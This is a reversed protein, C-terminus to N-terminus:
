HPKASQMIQACGKDYDATWQATTKELMPRACRVHVMVKGNLYWTERYEYRTKGNRAFYRLVSPDVGDDRKEYESMQKAKNVDADVQAKFAGSDELRKTNVIVRTAEGSGEEAPDKVQFAVVQPNGETKQMIVPWAAPASFKISGENLSYEGPTEAGAGAALLLSVFM